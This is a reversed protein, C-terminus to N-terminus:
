PTEKWPLTKLQQLSEAIAKQVGPDSERLQLDELLGVCRDGGMVGLGRVCSLRVDADSDLCYGRIDDFAEQGMSQALAVIAVIRYPKQWMPDTVLTRLMLRARKSQFNGLSKVAILRTRGAVNKDNIVDALASDVENGVEWLQASTPLEKGELLQILKEKTDMRTPHGQAWAQTPVVAMWGLALTFALLLGSLRTTGWPSQRGSFCWGSAWERVTTASVCGPVEISRPVRALKFGLTFAGALVQGPARNHTDKLIARGKTM